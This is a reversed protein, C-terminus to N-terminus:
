VISISHYLFHDFPTHLPLDTWMYLLQIAFTLSKKSFQDDLLQLSNESQSLIVM